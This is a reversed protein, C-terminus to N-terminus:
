AASVFPSGDATRKQFLVYAPHHRNLLFACDDLRIPLVALFLNALFHTKAMSPLPTAAINHGMLLVMVELVFFVMFMVRLVTLSVVSLEAFVVTM